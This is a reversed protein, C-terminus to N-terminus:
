AAIDEVIEDRYQRRLYLDPCPNDVEAMFRQLSNGRVGLIPIYKRHIAIAPKRLEDAGRAFRVIVDRDDKAMQPKAVEAKMGLKKLLDIVSMM